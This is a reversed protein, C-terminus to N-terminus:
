EIDLATPFQEAYGFLVRLGSDISSILKFNGSISDSNIPNLEKQLQSKQSGQGQLDIKYKKM